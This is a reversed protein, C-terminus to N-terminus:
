YVINIKFKEQHARILSGIAEDITEGCGWYQPFGDIAAHYDNSRKTIIIQHKLM